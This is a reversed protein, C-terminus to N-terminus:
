RFRMTSFARSSSGAGCVWFIHSWLEFAFHLFSVNLVIVHLHKAYYSVASVAVCIGRGRERERVWRKFFISSAYLLHTFDTFVFM